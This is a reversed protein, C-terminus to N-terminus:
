RCLLSPLLLFSYMSYSTIKHYCLHLVHKQRVDLNSVDKSQTFTGGPTEARHIKRGLRPCDNTNGNSECLSEAGDEMSPDEIKLRITVLYTVGPTVPCDMVFKTFDLRFGQWDRQMNSETLTGSEEDYELIGGEGGSWASFDM